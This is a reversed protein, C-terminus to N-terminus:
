ERRVRQEETEKARQACILLWNQGGQCIQPFWSLLNRQRHADNEV